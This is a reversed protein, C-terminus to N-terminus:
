AAVRLTANFAQNAEILRHLRQALWDRDPPFPVRMRGADTRMREHVAELQALTMLGRGIGSQNTTVVLVWGARKLARVVLATAEEVSLKLSM